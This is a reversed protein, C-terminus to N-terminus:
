LAILGEIDELSKYRKIVAEPNKEEKIITLSIYKGTKSYNKKIDVKENGFKDEVKQINEDLNPVIFKYMYTTPWSTNKQLEEELRQYLDKKDKHSDKPQKESMFM